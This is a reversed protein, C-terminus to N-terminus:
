PKHEAGGLREPWELSIGLASPLTPKVVREGFYRRVGLAQQILINTYVGPGSSYIRWGGDFAITNNKVRAWDGSAHYRDRFA